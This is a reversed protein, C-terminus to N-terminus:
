SCMQYHALMVRVHSRLMMGMYANQESSMM